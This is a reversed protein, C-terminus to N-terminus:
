INPPLHFKKIFPSRRFSAFHLNFFSEIRIQCILFYFFYVLSESLTSVDDSFDDESTEPFKGEYLNYQEIVVENYMKQWQNSADSAVKGDDKPKGQKQGKRQYM